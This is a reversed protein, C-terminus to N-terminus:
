EAEKTIFERRTRTQYDSDLVLQPQYDNLEAICLTRFPCHNCVLKNQIRVASASWDALPMRKYEQIRRASIAQERFTTIVRHDTLRLEVFKHRTEPTNEKMKRYRLINYGAKDVTHGSARMAAVYKPLQSQLESDEYSMFDYMIKHDIVWIKGWMDQIVLDIVVPFDLGDWISLMYEQEVGLVTWGHFPYAQYFYQLTDIVQFVPPAVIPDAQMTKTLVAMAATQAEEFTGGDMLCKFFYELALHGLTGRQLSDSTRKSEIGLGYGYYHQRNCRLFTDVESHSVTPRIQEALESM